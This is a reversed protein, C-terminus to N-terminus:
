SSSHTARELLQHQRLQGAGAAKAFYRGAAVHVEPNADNFAKVKAPDAAQRTAPDPMCRSCSHGFFQEPQRQRLVDAGVHQSLLWRENDPLNFQLAMNRQGRTNDPAKPNAGGVSFRAVVPVPKGSFASAVSLARAEGSGVFEGLACVGKAGSRRFGEYKGFTAEFQDLFHNPDVQASAPLATLMAAGALTCAALSVPRYPPM